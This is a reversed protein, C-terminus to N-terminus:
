ITIRRSACVAAPDCQLAICLSCLQVRLLCRKFLEKGLCHLRAISCSAKARDLVDTDIRQFVKGQRSAQKRKSKKRSGAAKQATASAADEKTAAGHTEGAAPRAAGAANSNAAAAADAAAGGCNEQNSNSANARRPEFAQVKLLDTQPPPLRGARVEADRWAGFERAAAAIAPAKVAPVLGVTSKRLGAPTLVPSAQSPTTLLMMAVADLCDECNAVDRNPWLTLNQRHKVRLVLMDRLKAGADPSDDALADLNGEFNIQMTVNLRWMRM